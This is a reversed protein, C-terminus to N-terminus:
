QHIAKDKINENEANKETNTSNPSSSKSNKKVTQNIANNSILLDLKELNELNELADLKKSILTLKRLTAIEWYGDQVEKGTNSTILLSIAFFILTLLTIIIVRYVKDFLLVDVLYSSIIVGLICGAISFVLMLFFRKVKIWFLYSKFSDENYM